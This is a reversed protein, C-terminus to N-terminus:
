TIQCLDLLYNADTSAPVFWLSLNVKSSSPAYLTPDEPQFGGLDEWLCPLGRWVFMLFKLM